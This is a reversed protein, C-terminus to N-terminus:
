LYNDTIFFAIEKNLCSDCIFNDNSNSYQKVEDSDFLGGCKFCKKKKMKNRIESLNDNNQIKIYPNVIVLSSLDSDHQLSKKKTIQNKVKEESIKEQMLLNFSEEKQKDESKSKTKKSVEIIQEETSGFKTNLTIKIQM